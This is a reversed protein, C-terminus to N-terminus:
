YKNDADIENREAITIAERVLKADYTNGRILLDTYLNWMARLHNHTTTPMPPSPTIPDSTLPESVTRGFLSRQGRRYVCYASSLPM